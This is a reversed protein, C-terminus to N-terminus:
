ERPSVLSDIVRVIREAAGKPWLVSVDLTAPPPEGAAYARLADELETETALKKTLGLRNTALPDEGKLGPEYSLVQKGAAAAQILVPSFMGVVLGATSLSEELSSATFMSIRGGLHGDFKHPEDKPHLRIHLYFPEPMKQVARALHELVLYEDFGYKEGDVERVPQSIFVIEDANERDHTIGETFHETHPNGTVHLRRGDFGAALMERRALEDIVCIATPLYGLDEEGASFRMRYNSWFDLVYVSPVQPILRFIKKDISDGVSSGALFVQSRAAEVKGRLVEEPCASADQVAIGNQAAIAVAPGTTIGVVEDGRAILARIVPAIANMGGPDNASWLIRKPSNM